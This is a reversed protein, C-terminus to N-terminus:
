LVAHEIRATDTDETLQFSFLLHYDGIQISDGEKLSHGIGEELKQENVLVGHTSRKDYIVYNEDERKIHAHHRSTLIDEDLLIDSSGARGLTVEDKQLPIKRPERPFSSTIILYPTPVLDTQAPHALPETYRRALEQTPPEVEREPNPQPQIPETTPPFPTQEPIPQAIDPAPTPIVVPDAEPQPTPPTVSPEVPAPQPEPIPQPAQGPQPIDPAMPPLPEAPLEQEEATAKAIQELIRQASDHDVDKQAKDAEITETRDKQSQAPSLSNILAEAFALISPYRAEQKASLARRIIDEQAATLGAQLTPIVESRKRREIETPAGTFPPHGTLWVFLLIALAYQDSAPTIQGAFQEPAATMPLIGSQSRGFHRVFQALSADSLLLPANETSDADARPQESILINSFALAGHVYGYSHVLHLAQSLQYTYTFADKRTLPPNFWLRGESGLLSGKDSYRRVVYLQGAVEGYNLVPALCPHILVSLVQMDRFFQRRAAYSLEAWPHILKLVVKIKLRDDQAEYSIGAGGQGLQRLISYREFKQGAALIHM